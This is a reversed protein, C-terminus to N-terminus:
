ESVYQHMKCLKDYNTNANDKHIHAYPFELWRKVLQQQVTRLDFSSGYMAGDACLKAAATGIQRAYAHFEPVSCPAYRETFCIPRVPAAVVSDSSATSVSSGKGDSALDMANIETESQCRM